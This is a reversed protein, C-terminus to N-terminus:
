RRQREQSVMPDVDSHSHEKPGGPDNQRQHEKRAERGHKALFSWSKGDSRQKEADDTVDAVAQHCQAEPKSNWREKVQGCTILGGCVARPPRKSGDGASELTESVEKKPHGEQGGAPRDHGAARERKRKTHYGARAYAPATVLGM